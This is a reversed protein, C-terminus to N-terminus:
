SLFSVEFIISVYRLDFAASNEWTQWPSVYKARVYKEIVDNLFRFNALYREEYSPLNVRIAIIAINNENVVPMEVIPNSLSEAGFVGLRVM